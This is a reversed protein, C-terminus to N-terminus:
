LHKLVEEFSKAIIDAKDVVNKRYVNETFVFFKEALGAERVEWDTYGDGIMFLDEKFNKEQIKKIKGQIQALVNKKDYGVYSGKKDFLFTNGFVHDEYIGFDKVVPLICERFGSSLIYINEANDMFFQKNKKISDTISKTLKKVVKQIDKKTPNFLQLRKELSEPFTLMGEMGLNTIKKIEKVINEKNTKKELVFSALLDLSEVKVFTSDFDILLITNKEIKTIMFVEKKM